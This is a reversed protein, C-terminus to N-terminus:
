GVRERTEAPSGVPKLLVEVAYQVCDEPTRLVHIREQATDSLQHHEIIAARLGEDDTVIGAVYDLAPYVWRLAPGDWNGLLQQENGSLYLFIRESDALAVGYPAMARYFLASDVNIIADAAMSRLLAVLMLEREDPAVGTLRSGLDIERVGTPLPAAAADDSQDTYIVVIEDAHVTGALAHALRRDPGRGGLVPRHTVIVVRARRFGADQHCAYIGAAARTVSEDRLPLQKLRAVAEPWAAGILPEVEVAKAFMEGLVGYRLRTQVDTRLRVVEDVVQQPELGLLVAMSEIGAAPDAIEGADKGRKLWELYPSRESVYEREPYRAVYRQMSFHPDPSVRTTADRRLFGRIPDARPREALDPVQFVYHYHDFRERVLDYDADVGYRRQNLRLRAVLHDVIPGFNTRDLVVEPRPGYTPPPAPLGAQPRRVGIRRAARGLARRARRRVAGTGAM